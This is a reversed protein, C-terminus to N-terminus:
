SINRKKVAPADCPGQKVMITEPNGSPKLTAAGTISASNSILCNSWVVSRDITAGGEIVTNDGIIVPGHLVTGSRVVCGEGLLVAGFSRVGPEVVASRAAMIGNAQRPFPLPLKVRGEALDFSAKLYDGLSGVADESGDGGAASEANVSIVIDISDCARGDEQGAQLQQAGGDIQVHGM